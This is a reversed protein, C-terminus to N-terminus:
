WLNPPRRDWNLVVPCEWGRANDAADRCFLDLTITGEDARSDIKVPFGFPEGMRGARAVGDPCSCNSTWM